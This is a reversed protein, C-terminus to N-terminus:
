GREERIVDQSQCSPCPVGGEEPDDTWTHNIDAETWHHGCEQCFLMDREGAGLKAEIRM